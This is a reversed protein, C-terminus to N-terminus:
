LKKIYHGNFVEEVMGKLKLKILIEYVKGIDLGTTQVVEEVGVPYLCLCSYVVEFDKELTFNNKITNKNKTIGLHLLLDEVDTYPFAGSRILRNCGISLADTVRGPVAFVDKGYSLAYDVTIFTGSKEKAEVVIVADSLMSIIRNRYPFRWPLAQAKPPYESIIGGKKQIETYLGINERPYCIDVGSGLVAYTFAEGKICGIHAFKDIGRAMGSIVSIGNESLERGIHESIERGYSSCNRAGVIAVIKENGPLSGKYFLVYPKDSYVKIKEPYDDKGLYTMKIDKERLEEINRELDFNRRSIEIKIIDDTTFAGTALLKKETAFYVDKPNDFVEMVRRIKDFWMDEVTVLWYWYKEM